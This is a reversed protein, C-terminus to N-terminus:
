QLIMVKKISITKFIKVIRSERTGSVRDMAWEFESEAVGGTVEASVTVTAPAPVTPRSADGFGTGLSREDCGGGEVPEVGGLIRRFVAQIRHRSEM